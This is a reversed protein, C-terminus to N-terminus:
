DERTPGAARFRGGPGRPRGRPCSSRARATGHGPRAAGPGCAAGARERHGPGPLVGRSGRENRIVGGGARDLRRRRRAGPRMTSTTCSPGTDVGPGSRGSGAPQRVRRPRDADRPDHRLLRTRLGRLLPGRAPAPRRRGRRTRRRRSRRRQGRSPARATRAKSGHAPRRSKGALDGRRLRLRAPPVRVRRPHRDGADSRGRRARRLAARPRAGPRPALQLGRRRRADHADRPGSACAEVLAVLM